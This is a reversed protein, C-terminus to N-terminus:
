AGAANGNDPETVRIKRQVWKVGNWCPWWGERPKSPKKETSWTPILWVGPERPSEQALVVEIFERSEPHYAYVDKIMPM